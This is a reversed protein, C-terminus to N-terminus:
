PRASWCQRGEATGLVIQGRLACEASMRQSDYSVCNFCLHRPASNKPAAAGKAKDALDKGLARWLRDQNRPSRRTRM